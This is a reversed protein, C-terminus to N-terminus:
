CLGQHCKEYQQEGDDVPTISEEVVEKHSAAEENRSWQIIFDM